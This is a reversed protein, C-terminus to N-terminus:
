DSKERGALWLGFGSLRQCLGQRIFAIDEWGPTGESMGLGYIAEQVAILTQNLVYTMIMKKRLLKDKFGFRSSEMQIALAECKWFDMMAYCNGLFMDQTDRDLDELYDCIRCHIQVWMYTEDEDMPTTTLIQNLEKVAKCIHAM